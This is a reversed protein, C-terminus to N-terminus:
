ILYEDELIDRSQELGLLTILLFVTGRPFAWKISHIMFPDILSATLTTIFEWLQLKYIIEQWYIHDCLSLYRKIHKHNYNQIQLKNSNKDYKNYIDSCEWMSSELLYFCYALVGIFTSNQYFM